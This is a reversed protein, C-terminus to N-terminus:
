QHYIITGKFKTTDTLDAPSLYSMSTASTGVVGMLWVVGATSTTDWTLGSVATNM